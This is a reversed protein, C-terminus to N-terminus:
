GAIDPANRRKRHMRKRVAIGEKMDYWTCRERESARDREKGRKRKKDKQRKKDQEWKRTRGNGRERKGEKM